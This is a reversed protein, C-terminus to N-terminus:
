WFYASMVRSHMQWFGEHQQMEFRCLARAWAAALRKARYDTDGWYKYPYLTVLLDYNCVHSTV